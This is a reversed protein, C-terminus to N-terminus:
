LYALLRGAVCGIFRRAFSNASLISFSVLPRTTKWIKGDFWSPDSVSMSLWTREPAISNKVSDPSIRDVSTGTADILPM